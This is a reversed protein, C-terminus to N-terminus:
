YKIVMSALSALSSSESPKRSLSKLFGDVEDEEEEDEEESWSTELSSSATDVVTNTRSYSFVKHALETARRVLFPSSRDSLAVDGESARHRSMRNSFTSRRKLSAPPEKRTHDTKGPQDTFKRSSQSRTVTPRSTSTTGPDFNVRKAKSSIIPIDPVKCSVESKTKMNFGSDSETHLVTNEKSDSLPKQNTVEDNTIPPKLCPQLSTSSGNVSPELHITTGNISDPLHNIDPRSLSQSSVVNKGNVPQCYSLDSQLYISNSQLFTSNTPTLLAADTDSELDSGLEESESATFHRCGSSSTDDPYCSISSETASLYSISDESETRRFGPLLRAPDHAGDAFPAAGFTPLMVADHYGCETETVHNESTVHADGSTVHADGPHLSVGYQFSSTPTSDDESSQHDAAQLSMNLDLSQPVAPRM